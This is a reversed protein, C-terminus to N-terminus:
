LHRAATAGLRDDGSPGAGSDRARYGRVDRKQTQCYDAQIFEPPTEQREFALQNQALQAM